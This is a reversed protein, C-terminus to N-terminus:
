AEAKLRNVALTLRSVKRSATRKHIIGKSAVHSITKIAENLATEAQQVDGGDIAVRVQKISTRLTSKWFRNRAYRKENQRIRKLASKHNAM